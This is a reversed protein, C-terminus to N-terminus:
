IALFGPCPDNFVSMLRSEHHAGATERRPDSDQGSELFNRPWIVTKKSIKIREPPYVSTM